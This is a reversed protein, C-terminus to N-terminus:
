HYYTDHLVNGGEKNDEKDWAKNMGFGPIFAIGMDVSCKTSMCVGCRIRNGLPVMVPPVIEQYETLMIFKDIWGRNFQLTFYPIIEKENRSLFYGSRNV